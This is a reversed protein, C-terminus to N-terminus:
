DIILKHIDEKLQDLSQDLYEALRTNRNEGFWKTKFNKVAAKYKEQSTDGSKYWELDHLLSCFDQLLDELELDEMCGEYEYLLSDSVYNFAGGSM